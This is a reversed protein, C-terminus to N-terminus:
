KISEFEGIEKNKRVNNWEFIKGNMSIYVGNPISQVSAVACGLNFLADGKIFSYPVMAGTLIITKNKLNKGLLEATEKMTDTGHIIIIKNESCSNCRELIKKRHEDKMDLSDVMMLTEIEYDVKYKVNELIENLHTERFILSGDLENYVKDFTGGTALLRIKM